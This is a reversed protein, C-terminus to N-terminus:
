KYEQLSYSSFISVVDKYYATPAWLLYTYSLMFVPFSKLLEIGSRRAFFYKCWMVRTFDYNTMNRIKQTCIFGFEFLTNM